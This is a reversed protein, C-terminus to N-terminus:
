RALRGGTFEAANVRRPWRVVPIRQFALSLAPRLRLEEAILLARQLRELWAQEVIEALIIENWETAPSNQSLFHFRDM